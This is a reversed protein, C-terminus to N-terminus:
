LCQRLNYQWPSRHLFSYLLHGISHLRLGFRTYILSSRDNPIPGAHMFACVHYEIQKRISIRTHRQIEFTILPHQQHIMYSNNVAPWETRTKQRFIAWIKWVIRDFLSPPHPPSSFYLDSMLILAMNFDYKAQLQLLCALVWGFHITFCLSWSVNRPRGWLM